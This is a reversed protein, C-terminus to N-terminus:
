KQSDMEDQLAANKETANSNEAKKEANESNEKAKQADADSEPYLIRNIPVLYTKGVELDTSGTEANAETGTSDNNDAAFAATPICGILMAAAMVFTLLKKAAKKM